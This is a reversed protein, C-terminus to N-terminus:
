RHERLARQHLMHEAEARLEPDHSFEGVLDWRDPLRLRTLARLLLVRSSGLSRDRLLALLDEKVERDALTMLAEALGQRAGSDLPSPDGRYRHVLKTWLPRAEAAVFARTIGERVRDPLASDLHHLLVDYTGPPYPRHNHLSWVSAVHLGLTALDALLPQEAECRSQARVAMEADLAANRAQYGADNALEAM